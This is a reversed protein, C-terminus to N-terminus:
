LHKLGAGGSLKSFDPECHSSPEIKKAPNTAAIKLAQEEPLQRVISAVFEDVVLRAHSNANEGLGNKIATLIQPIKGSKIAAPSEMYSKMKKRVWQSNGVYRTYHKVTKIDGDSFWNVRGAMFADAKQNQLKGPLLEKFYEWDADMEALFLRFSNALEADSFAGGKPRDLFVVPGTDAIEFAMRKEMLEALLTREHATKPQRPAKLEFPKDTELSTSRMILKMVIGQFHRSFEDAFSPTATYVEEQIRIVLEQVSKVKGNNVDDIIKALAARQKSKLHSIPPGNEFSLGLVGSSLEALNHYNAFFKLFAKPNGEFASMIGVNFHARKNFDLSLEKAVSFIFTEAHSENKRMKKLTEPNTQIEVCNPDSSINFTYGKAPGNIFTVRYETAGFKGTHPTISCEQGCREKVKDAFAKAAEWEAERPQQWDIGLNKAAKRREEFAQTMKKSGFNFESGYTPEWVLASHALTPIFISLLVAWRQSNSQLQRNM